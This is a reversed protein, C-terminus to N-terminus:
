GAGLLTKLFHAEYANVSIAEIKAGGIAQMLEAMHPTNMHQNVAEEDSWQEVIHLLNPDAIDVGYAYRACGEEARTAHVNMRFAPTLRAIEGEAFRVQGTVIIMAREGKERSEERLKNRLGDQQRVAV